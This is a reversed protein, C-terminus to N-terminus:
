RRSGATAATAYQGVSKGGTPQVILYLGPTQGDAIEQRKTTPATKRVSVDTLM